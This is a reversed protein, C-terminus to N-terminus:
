VSIREVINRTVKRKRRDYLNTTRPDAHGLLYQVDERSVGQELLDTATGSRFSHASLRAPLGADKMRRKVMRQMDNDTMGRGTFRKTTGFSTQFFPLAENCVTIGADAMYDMIYLELSHRIPIERSKGGKEAFRLCYQEGSHYFDKVQLKAVAGIRAATYILIGVIAKDRRNVLTAGDISQLLQHAQPTTIEPTKGEIVQYREGRVSLAPNLIVAHRTVQIDFFHRIASLYLKKSAPSGQSKDMFQRVHRPVIEHLKIDGCWLLFKDVARRYARRTHHNSIAGYVFEDYAFRAADGANSVIAPHNEAPTLDSSTTKIIQNKMSVKNNM